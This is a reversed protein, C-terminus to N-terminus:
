RLFVRLDRAARCHVVSGRLLHFLPIREIPGLRPLEARPFRQIDRDLDRRVLQRCPRSGFRFRGDGSREARRLIHPFRFFGCPLREAFEAVRPKLEPTELQPIGVMQENRHRLQVFQPPLDCGLHFLMERFFRGQADLANLVGHAAM